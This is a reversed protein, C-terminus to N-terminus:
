STKHFRKKQNQGSCTQSTTSHVRRWSIFGIASDGTRRIHHLLRHVDMAATPIPVAAKWVSVGSGVVPNVRAGEWVMRRAPAHMSCPRTVACAVPVAVANRVAQVAVTVAIANAVPMIAPGAIRM